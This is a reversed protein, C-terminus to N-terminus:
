NVGVKVGGENVLNNIQAETLDEILFYDGVLSNIGEIVNEPLNQIANYKDITEFFSIGLGNKNINLRSQAASITIAYNRIDLFTNLVAQQISPNADTLNSFLNQGTLMKKSEEMDFDGLVEYKAILKAIVKMEAAGDYQVTNSKTKRIEKVFDKIIPQSLLLYPISVETGDELVDKDFGLASMLSDVNITVENVNLRGMIQEKENDTATNQRESFIEAINRQYKAPALSVQRGLLGKSVQNGITFTKAVKEGEENLTILQIPRPAQQVMSHFVVYNSYVGIGLQGSAGLFMKNKQFSDSLLSFYTTDTNEETTKQVLEAQSKAFNMSLVKNIKKQIQFFLVIYELM